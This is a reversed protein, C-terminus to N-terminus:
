FFYIKRTIANISKNETEKKREKTAASMRSCVGKLKMDQLKNAYM